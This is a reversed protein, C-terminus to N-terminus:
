MKLIRRVTQKEGVQIRLLYQGSPQQSLDLTTKQRRTTTKLIPQGTMNTVSLIAPDRLLQVDLEVTLTAGAPVPYAKVLPDLPNDDLVGLLPLVRVTATGTAAGTGCFGTVSTLRYTTTRSPRAEVVLPNVATTAQYSRLSDAYTLAWPGDGGLAITLNVPTGEYIDQTGNLTATAPAKVTLITPSNSGTIGIEPNSAKVRVYYQGGPLTTSVSSTIPSGSAVVGMDYKRSTDAVSALELRFVNGPNFEGTRSFPVTLSAGGCLATTSLEGTALTPVRVLVEATAPNGPLGTGCGNTVNIVQYTTTGRPLVSITTDARNSTGINNGTLTYSYPGSGTFRLRLPTRQGLNVSNGSSTISLTPVTNVVVRIVSRASYCGNAGIQYVQFPDGNADINTNLTPPTPADTTLRNYPDIWRLSGGPEATAALPTAKDNVCYTYLVKQIGPSPATNVAVQIQARGGECGDVTQSVNFTQTGTRDIGPTPTGIANGDATFWRLNQGNATLPSINQAPQDQEAKCYNVNSVGPLGPLPKIRVPVTAKVSECNEGNTQTVKFQQDGVNSTTPAPANGLPNDNNDYWKLREGSATLQQAPANNCFAFASVGPAVPTPKVRVPLGVRPGECGNLTQSVYYVQTGVTNNPPTPATSAATGGSQNQGYWNVSAGGVLSATLMPATANQCFDLANVGPQGPTTKIQVPIAARESECGSVTQTVYYSQTGVANTAPTVVQTSATGGTANTGYWRLTNGNAVLPQAQTGQCYPVPATTAPLAPVPNVAVTITKRETGDCGNLTQRVYYTLTGVASTPPTPAGALLRDNGDYWSLTAGPETPTATLQTASRNLCFPTPTPADPAGPVKKITVTVGIRPGQCGDATTAQSVYYTATATNSVTPPNTTFVGGQASGWWRLSSGPSATATLSGVPSGSCTPAPGSVTPPGPTAVITVSIPTRTLSACGNQVQSVYYIASAQNDPKPAETSSQGGTASTGWWLLTAGSAPTATLPSVTANQCYPPPAQASPPGPIANVKFEITSRDSECSSANVQSVYYLTSGVTSTPPQPTTTSASGGTLVTYWRLTGAPAALPKVPDGQCAAQFGTVTPKAPRSNVTVTIPAQPSECGGVTQSVYYTRTQDTTPVTAPSVGVGNPNTGYWKLDTGDAKLAVPNPDGQCYEPPSPFTPKAPNSVTIRGSATTAEGVVVPRSSVVRIRYGSGDATGTPITVSVLGTTSSTGIVTPSAPFFGIVDSLQISFQNNASFSGTTTITVAVNRGPCVTASSFSTSVTQALSQSALGLSCLLLFVCSSRIRRNM